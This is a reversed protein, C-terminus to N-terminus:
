DYWGVVSSSNEGNHDIRREVTVELLRCRLGRSNVMATRVCNGGKM